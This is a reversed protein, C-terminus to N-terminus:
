KDRMGAHILKGWCTKPPPCPDMEKKDLLVSNEGAVFLVGGSPAEVTKFKGNKTM